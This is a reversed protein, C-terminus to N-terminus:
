SWMSVVESHVNHEKLVDAVEIALAVESGTALLSVDIRDGTRYVTYAGRGVKELEQDPVAPVAFAARSTSIVVPSQAQQVWFAFANLTETLNCPRCVYVDPTARLMALQEIPQHTPGDEGVTISDHSFVTLTNLKNIAGLRLAPKTYDAFAMFTSGVGLMGGHAAIGNLIAQM